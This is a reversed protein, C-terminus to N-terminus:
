IFIWKTESITTLRMNQFGQAIYEKMIKNLQNSDDAFAPLVYKVTKYTGDDQLVDEAIKVIFLKNTKSFKDNVAPKLTKMMCVDEIEINSGISKIVKYGAEAFHVAETLYYESVIREKNTQIDLSKRTVKIRFYM